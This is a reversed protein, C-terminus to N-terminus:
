MKYIKKIFNKINVKLKISILKIDLVYKRILIM